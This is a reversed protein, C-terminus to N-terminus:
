PHNKLYDDGSCEIQWIAQCDRHFRITRAVSHVHVEVELEVDGRQIPQDCLACLQGSGHGGWIRSPPASPLQGQEIRRRAISRLEAELQPSLMM